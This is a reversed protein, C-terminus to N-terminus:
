DRPRLSPAAPDFPATAIAVSPSPLLPDADISCVSWGHDTRELLALPSTHHFEIWRVLELLSPSDFLVADADAGGDGNSPAPMPPRLLYPSIM